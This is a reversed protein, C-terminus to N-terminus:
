RSKKCADVEVILREAFDTLFQHEASVGGIPRFGKGVGFMGKSYRYMVVNVCEFVKVTKDKPHSSHKFTGDEKIQGGLYCHVEIKTRWTDGRRVEVVGRIVGEPITRVLTTCEITDFLFRKSVRRASWKAGLRELAKLTELLEKM